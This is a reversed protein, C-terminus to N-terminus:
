ANDTAAEEGSGGTGRRNRRGPRLEQLEDRTIEGDAAADAFRGDPDNFPHDEGLQALEDSSIVDDELFGQILERDAQREERRAEREAKLEDHKAQMADNVADAQAQNITGAAVLDALVEDLAGSRTDEVAAETETDTVTQADAPAPTVSTAVFAGAVLVGAAALSAIIKKMTIVGKVRQM